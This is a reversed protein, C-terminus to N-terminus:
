NQECSYEGVFVFERSCEVSVTTQGKLSTQYVYKQSFPSRAMEVKTVSCNEAGCATQEALKEVESADGYVNNLGAVTLALCALPIVIRVVGGGSAM